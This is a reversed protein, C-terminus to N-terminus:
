RRLGGGGGEASRLRLLPRTSALDFRESQLTRRVHGEEALSAKWPWFGRCWAVKRPSGLANPSLSGHVMFAYEGDRPPPPALARGVKPLAVWFAGKRGQPCLLHDGRGCTSAVWVGASSPPQAGRGLSRVVAM